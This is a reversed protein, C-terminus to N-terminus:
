GVGDVVSCSGGHGGTGDHRGGSELVEGKVMLLQAVAVMAVLAMM